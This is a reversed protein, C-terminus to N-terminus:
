LGRESVNLLGRDDELKIFIESTGLFFFIEPLTWKVGYPYLVM